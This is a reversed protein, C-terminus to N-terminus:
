SMIKTNIFRSNDNVKKRQPNDEGADLTEPKVLFNKWIIPQHKCSGEWWPM